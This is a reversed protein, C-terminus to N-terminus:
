LDSNRLNRKGYGHQLGLRRFRWEERFGARLLITTTWRVVDLLEVHARTELHEGCRVLASGVAGVICEDRKEGDEVALGVLLREFGRRM